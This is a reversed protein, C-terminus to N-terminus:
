SKCAYYYVVNMLTEFVLVSSYMSVLVPCEWISIGKSIRYEFLCEVLRLSTNNLLAIMLVTQRRGEVISNAKILSKLGYCDSELTSLVKALSGVAMIHAFAVCFLVGLLGVAVLFGSAFLFKPLATLVAM